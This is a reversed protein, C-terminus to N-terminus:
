LVQPQRRFLLIRIFLVPVVVGPRCTSDHPFSRKSLIKGTEQDKAQEKEEHRKRKEKKKEKEVKTDTSTVGPATRKGGGRV